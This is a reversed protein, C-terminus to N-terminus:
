HQASHRTVDVAVFHLKLGTLTDAYRTSANPVHKLTGGIERRGSSPKPMSRAMSAHEHQM